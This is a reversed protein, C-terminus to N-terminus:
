LNIHIAKDTIFQEFDFEFWLRSEFQYCGGIYERWNEPVDFHSSQIAHKLDFSSAYEFPFALLDNNIKLVVVSNQIVNSNIELLVNLDIVSAIEGRLSLLGLYWDITNPVPFVDPHLIVESTSKEPLLFGIDAIRFGYRLNLDVTQAPNFLLSDFDITTVGARGQAVENKKINTM